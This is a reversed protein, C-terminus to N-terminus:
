SVCADVSTKSKMESKVLPKLIQFFYSSSVTVYRDM